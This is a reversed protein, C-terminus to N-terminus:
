EAIPLSFGIDSGGDQRSRAWMAGGQAEILRKCVALGVGVGGAYHSTSPSRYFPTFLLEAEEPPFGGGRDLVSVELQDGVNRIRVEIPEHPPSYKEANSLLNRVVQEVYVPEGSIPLSGKDADIRITRHPFRRRHEAVIPDVLRRVLLPEASIAQGRELRALVLLNDIIRHLREAENSIDQLASTRSEEDLREFRHRLVEANGYITTIPTKLEHSVLGLFEDKAANAKTLEEATREAAAFLRANDVAVSAWGAIGAAIREEREGLKGAEEHGFFLAGLVGGSRSAVPVSLYSRLPPHREPWGRFPANQGFRPDQTVDDCRVMEGRSLSAALLQTERPLPIDGFTEPDIGALAYRTDTEGGDGVLYYFFVGFSAGTLATASEIVAQVVKHLDLEATLVAGIRQLTEVVRSEEVLAQEARMLGEIDTSTGFWRVVEGSEGRISLARSLHWRYRGSEGERLREEFQFAEGTNMSASWAELSKQADDPHVYALWDGSEGGNISVGTYEYWRRNFYDVVGDPGATWVIQPMADALQHFREVSARLAQEAEKRDNIDTSTGFWRVVRGEDDHVPLARTLYWRYQGSAPERFRYEIEYPTGARVAAYWGELARQADDPHVVSLWAEDGGRGVGGGAFEQWRRNGYDVFGDPRATWVIQPMADALQRFRQEGELLAQEAQKRDDIDIGTSIWARVTGARDRVPTVSGLHWRFVGDHRRVRIEVAFAEGTRLADRWLAEVAPAEQPHFVSRVDEISRADRGLGTYETWRRNFYLPRGRPSWTSIIAPLSAALTRWREESLRAAEEARKRDDIDTSTVLWSTVAGGDDRLPVARTLFWRAAGDHALIRHVFEHPNGSGLMTMWGDATEQRDEPHVSAIWRGDRVEEITRGAYDLFHQNIYTVNGNADGTWVFAAPLSELLRRYAREREALADQERRRPRNDRLLCRARAWEGSRWLVSSDILVDIVSGDRAVVRAEYDRVAEGRGLRALIDEAVARDEFFEAANHGVYEDRAYGLLDLEARNVDLITGDAALSHLGVAVHEFFDRLDELEPEPPRPAASQPQVDKLNPQKM